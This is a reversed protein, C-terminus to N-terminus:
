HSGEPRLRPPLPFSKKYSGPLPPQPQKLRPGIMSDSRIFHPAVLEQKQAADNKRFCPAASRYFISITTRPYKVHLRSDKGQAGGGGSEHPSKLHRTLRSRSISVLLIRPQRPPREAIDSTSTDRQSSPRFLDTGLLSHDYPSRAQPSAETNRLPPIDAM